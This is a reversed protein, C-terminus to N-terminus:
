LGLRAKVAAVLEGSKIYTAVADALTMVFMALVFSLAPAASAPFSFADMAWPTGFVSGAFGGLVMLWRTAIPLSNDIWRLSMLSGILAALFNVRTTGLETFLSPMNPDAM